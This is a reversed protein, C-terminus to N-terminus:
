KKFLQRKSPIELSAMKKTMSSAKPLMSPNTPEPKNTFYPHKLVESSKIRKAPDYVLMKSLLDITDDSAANFITKLPTREISKERTFSSDYDPLTVISPWEQETPTGLARFITNLQSIDSDGPLFPTRLLLEAMICGIAWIDIAGDYKKSGLLLEPARYWRTCVQSTMLNSEDSDNLSLIAFSPSSPISFRALGFDAIKLIGNENLLLNNPKLDRHLIRRDHCFTVGEVLMKLWSKIDASKIIIERNKIIMELNTPLYELILHLNTSSTYVDYLSIINPHELEGLYKLERIASIDLGVTHSIMKIKKIAVLRNTLTDKGEYVIAYTGEGIKRKKQYRKNDQDHIQHDQEQNKDNMSDHFPM